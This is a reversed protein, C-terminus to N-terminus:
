EQKEDENVVVKELNADESTRNVLEREQIEVQESRLNEAEILQEIQRKLEGVQLELGENELILNEVKANLDEKKLRDEEKELRAQETIDQELKNYHNILKQNEDLLLEVKEQLSIRAEQEEAIIRTHEESQEKLKETLKHLTENEEVVFDLQQKLSGNEQELTTIVQVKIENIETLKANVELLAHTSEQIRRVADDTTEAELERIKEREGLDAVHLDEEECEIPRNEEQQAGVSEVLIFQKLEAGDERPASIELYQEPHEQDSM